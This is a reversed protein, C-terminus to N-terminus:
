NVFKIKCKVTFEKQTKFYKISAYQYVYREDKQQDDIENKIEKGDQEVSLQFEMQPLQIDSNASKDFCIQFEMIRSENNRPLYCTLHIRGNGCEIEESYNRIWSESRGGFNTETPGM